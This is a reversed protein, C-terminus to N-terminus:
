LLGENRMAQWDHIGAKAALKNRAARLARKRAKGTREDARAFAERIAKKAGNDLAKWAAAVRRRRREAAAAERREEKRRLEAAKRAENARRTIVQRTIAAPQLDLAKLAAKVAVLWDSTAEPHPGVEIDAWGHMQGYTPPLDHDSVRIKIPGALIDGDEDESSAFIYVSTGHSSYHLECSAGAAKLHRHVYNAIDDIKKM